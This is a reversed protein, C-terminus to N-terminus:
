NTCEGDVNCECAQLWLQQQESQARSTLSSLSRERACVFFFVAVLWSGIMAAGYRSSLSYDIQNWWRESPKSKYFLYIPHKNCSLFLAFCALSYHSSSESHSLDCRSTPQFHLSFLGSESKHKISQHQKTTCMSSEADGKHGDSHRSREWLPWGLLYTDDRRYTGAKISHTLARKRAQSHAHPKCMLRHVSCLTNKKAETSSNRM